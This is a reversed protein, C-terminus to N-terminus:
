VPQAARMAAVKEGLDTAKPRHYVRELIQTTEHGSIQKVEHPPLTKLWRTIAERRADHFRLGVIGLRRKADAFRQSCSKANYPFVREHPDSTARPQRKIIEALEPFLTFEKDNGKKKTPHKLNRVWYTQNKWDIDGWTIRCIEGLRRTSALAFALVQAMDIKTTRHKEQQAFLDLLAQIEEDTPRRSRPEGKSIVGRAVLFPRADEIPAASVNKCESRWASRAYKLVVGLCSLEKGVTMPTIHRTTRLVFDKRRGRAYVIIDDDTLSSAKKEGIPRRAMARLTYTQSEGCPKMEPSTAMETIYREILAAVTPQQAVFRSYNIRPKM